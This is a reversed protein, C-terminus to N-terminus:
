YKSLMKILKHEEVEEKLSKFDIKVRVSDNNNFVEWINLNLDILEETQFINGHKSDREIFIGENDRLLKYMQMSKILYINELVHTNEDLHLNFICYHRLYKSIKGSFNQAYGFDGAFEYDEELIGQLERDQVLIKNIIM